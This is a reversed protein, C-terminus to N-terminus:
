KRTPFAAAVAGVMASGLWIAAGLLWIMAGLGWVISKVLVVLLTKIFDFM